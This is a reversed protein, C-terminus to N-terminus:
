EERTIGAITEIRDMGDPVLDKIIDVFNMTMLRKARKLLLPAPNSPEHREFYSIIKDVLLLADQRSGIEGAAVNMRGAAAAGGAGAAGAAGAEGEAAQPLANKMVEDLVRLTALLPKLDPARDSGVRENLASSLTKMAQTANAVCDAALEGQAAATSILGDIQSGQLATEGARPPLSGRAVEVERVLLQGARSRVLAAARLDRLLGDPDALAALANLRMTPDGDDADLKPHVDDWYRDLLQHILDMGPQLGAFQETRVLARALLAAVRLDKSRALLERARRAVDPWNPEEAAIVTEGFQQEPKGRSLQELELFEPDYELDPGCPPAAKVEELLGEIEVVL